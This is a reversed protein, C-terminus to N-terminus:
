DAVAPAEPGAARARYSQIGLVSAFALVAAGIGVVLADDRTPKVVMAFVIAYMFVLDVRMVAFLRRILAQGEATEAGVRPIRKALPSLVGVGVVFSGAFAALAYVVWLQGWGFDGDLMLGVGALVVVLSAPVFLREGLTGVRGAFAAMEARDGGREVATGYVQVFLGGGLWVVAGAVHVFLLFEYWSV